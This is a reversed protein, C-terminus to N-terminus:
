LEDPLNSLEQRPWRDLGFRRVEIDKHYHKALM